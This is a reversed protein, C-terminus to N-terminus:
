RQIIQFSAGDYYTNNVKDKDAKNKNDLATMKDFRQAGFNFTSCYFKYAGEYATDDEIENHCPHQFIVGFFCNNKGPARRMLWFIKQIVVQPVHNILKIAITHSEGIKTRNMKGTKTDRGSDDSDIDLHTINLEAIYESFDWYDKDGENDRIALVPMFGYKEKYSSLTMTEYLLKGSYNVILRNVKSAM